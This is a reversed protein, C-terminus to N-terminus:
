LPKIEGAEQVDVPVGEIEAPLAEGPPLDALARKSKVMVIIAVEETLAGGRQRLGVGVGVVGPRALLEAEHRARVAQAQKIQAEQDSM